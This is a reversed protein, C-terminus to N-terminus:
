GLRRINRRTSRTAQFSSESDGIRKGAYKLFVDDLSARKCSVSENVIGYEKLKDLIHPIERDGDLAVLDYIGPSSQSLLHYGLDRFVQENSGDGKIFFSVIDGGLGKKLEEPSGIIAIQGSNMIAIRDCLEDAEAMDHTTILITTHFEERLRIIYEWIMRKATPDLGISPEDMFLVLPRNVLVQGIELRRMMGGSYTRVMNNAKDAVQMFDLAEKIRKSRESAPVRYLKAYMLLNEYGTLDADVSVEQPVYGCRQRAQQPNRLVDIGSIKIDGSAPKTLTLLCRITTTKGAGNPGLLGFIEGEDVAFSIDNVAIFHGYKKVLNDVEIMQGM